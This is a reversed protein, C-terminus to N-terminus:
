LSPSENTINALDRIWWWCCAAASSPVLFVFYFAPHRSWPDGKVIEFAAAAPLYDMAQIVYGAAGARTTEHYERRDMINKELIPTDLYM